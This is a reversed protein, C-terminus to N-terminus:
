FDKNIPHFCWREGKFELTKVRGRELVMALDGWFTVM